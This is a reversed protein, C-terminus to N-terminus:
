GLSRVHHRFFEEFEEHLAEARQLNGVQQDYFSARGQQQEADGHFNVTHQWIRRLPAMIERIMADLVPDKGNIKRFGECSTFLASLWLPLFVELRNLHDERDDGFSAEAAKRSADVQEHLRRAAAFYNRYLALVPDNGTHAEEGPIRRRQNVV